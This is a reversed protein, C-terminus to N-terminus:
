APELEVRALELWQPAASDLLGFGLSGEPTAVAWQNDIWAVFGLPGRPARETELVTVGDVSLRAGDRRWEIAYDHWQELSSDLLAEAVRLDRQLRPWILRRLLPRRNLLMLLPAAPAWRLASLRLADITAAKWGHGPVGAALAMDSPPSAYFFWLARPPLPLGGLPTFPNNWFGFGATGRPSGSFRARVRLELPPRWPYAARRLGSYDDIQADSYRRTSCRPLALLLGSPRLALAGEGILLTRWRGRPIEGAPLVIM